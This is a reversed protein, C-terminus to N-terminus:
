ECEYQQISRMISDMADQCNDGLLKHLMDEEPADEILEKESLAWDETFNLREKKLHYKLMQLSEMLEPKIRNRKKTDTEASSSFVRECSVASAQIPLYDMAMAFLTPFATCSIQFLVDTNTVMISSSGQKSAEWFKVIDVTKPSPPATIYAQYEQEVTQENAGPNGIDMDEDDLGYEAALAYSPLNAGSSGPQISLPPEELPAEARERYEIMKYVVYLLRMGSSYISTCFNFYWNNLQRRPTMLM